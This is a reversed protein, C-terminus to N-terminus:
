RGVSCVGDCGYWSVEIVPHNAYGAKARYRGGVREILAHEDTLDGYLVM